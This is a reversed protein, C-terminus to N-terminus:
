DIISQYYENLEIVDAVIEENLESSYKDDDLELLVNSVIIKMETNLALIENCIEEYKNNDRNEYALIFLFDYTEILLSRMAVTLSNVETSGDFHYCVQNVYLRLRDLSKADEIDLIDEVRETMQYIQEWENREINKLVLTKTNVNNLLYLNSFILLIIVVCLFIKSKERM